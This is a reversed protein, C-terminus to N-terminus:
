NIENLKIIGFWDIGDFDHGTYYYKGNICFHQGIRTEVITGILYDYNEKGHYKVKFLFVDGEHYNWKLSDLTLSGNIPTFRINLNEIEM